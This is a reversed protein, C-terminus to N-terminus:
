LDTNQSAIAAIDINYDRPNVIREIQVTPAGDKGGISLDLLPRKKLMDGGADRVLMVLPQLRAKPNSAMVIGLNENSLLVLSGIPYIGICKIFEEILDRGFHDKAEKHLTTLAEQPSVGHRYPRDAIMADYVDAVAVILVSVPIDEGQLGDPYGSGDLREHHSRVIRLCSDPMHQTLKLVAQGEAPHRKVVGFEEDSLPGPKELIDNPVRMMGVDHLLAGIGITAIEAKPLGLHRAFAIALISTNISHDAIYANKSRLNTLWLATSANRSITNILGGVVQRAEDADVSRGLRVDDLVKITNSHATTRVERAHEYEAQFSASSPSANEAIKQDPQKNVSSVAAGVHFDEAQKRSGEDGASDIATKVSVQSREEDVYVFECCERLKDLDEDDDIVFGQFLFPSELWPRDLEAVYMGIKLKDTSIQHKM